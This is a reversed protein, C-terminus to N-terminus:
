VYVDYVHANGGGRWSGDPRSPAPTFFNGRPHGRGREAFRPEPRRPDSRPNFTQGHAALAQQQRPVSVNPSHAIYQPKSVNLVSSPLVSLGRYAACSIISLPDAYSGIQPTPPASM